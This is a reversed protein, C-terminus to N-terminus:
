LSTKEGMPFRVAWIFPIESLDLGHAIEEMEEKCVFYESGFSVFVTSAKGKKDLWELIYTAETLITWIIQIKFEFKFRGYCRKRM